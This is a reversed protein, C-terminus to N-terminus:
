YRDFHNESVNVDEPNRPLPQFGRMEPERKLTEGPAWCINICIIDHKIGINFTPDNFIHSTFRCTNRDEVLCHTPTLPQLDKYLRTKLFGSIQM